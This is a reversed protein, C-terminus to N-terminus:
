LSPYRPNSPYTIFCRSVAHFLAFSCSVVRLQMFCRTVRIVDKKM